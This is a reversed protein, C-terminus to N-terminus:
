SKQIAYLKSVMKLGNNNYGRGKERDGKWYRRVRRSQHIIHITEKGKKNTVHKCDTIGNIM